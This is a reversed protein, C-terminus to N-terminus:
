VILCSFLCTNRSPPCPVSVLKLRGANGAAYRDLAEREAFGHDAYFRGIEAQTVGPRFNVLLEGPIISATLDASPLSRDELVELALRARLESPRKCSRRCFDTLIPFRM